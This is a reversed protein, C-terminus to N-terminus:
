KRWLLELLFSGSCAFWFHHKGKRGHRRRGSWLAQFIRLIIPKPAINLRWPTKRRFHFHLWYFLCHRALACCPEPRGDRRPSCVEIRATIALCSFGWSFLPVSTDLHSPMM